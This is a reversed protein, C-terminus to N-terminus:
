QQGMQEYSNHHHFVAQRMIDDQGVIRDTLAAYLEDTNINIRASNGHLKMLFARSRRVRSNLSSPLHQKRASVCNMWSSCPVVLSVNHQYTRKAYEIVAELGDAHFDSGVYHRQLQVQAELVGIIREAPPEPIPVRFHKEMRTQDLLLHSGPSMTALIPIETQILQRIMEELM